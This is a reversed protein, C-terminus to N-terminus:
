TETFRELVAPRHQGLDAMTAAMGPPFAIRDALWRASPAEPRVTVKDIQPPQKIGAASFPAHFDGDERYRLQAPLPAQPQEPWVSRIAVRLKVALEYNQTETWIVVSVPGGPRVVRRMGALGQVTDPFLIVGLMSLALPVRFFTGTWLTSCPQPRNWLASVRFPTKSDVLSLM